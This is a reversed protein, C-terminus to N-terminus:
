RGHVPESRRGPKKPALSELYRHAARASALLPRRDQANKSLSVGGEFLALLSLAADRPAVSRTIRGMRGVRELIRDNSAGQFGHQHM